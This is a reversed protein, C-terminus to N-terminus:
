KTATSDTVVKDGQPDKGNSPNTGSLSAVYNSLDQMENPKLTAKWAIM